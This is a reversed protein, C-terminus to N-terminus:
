GVRITLADLDEPSPVLSGFNITGRDNPVAMTYLGPASTGSILSYRGGTTFTDACSNQANDM